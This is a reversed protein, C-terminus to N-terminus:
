LEDLASESLMALELEVGVAALEDLVDSEILASGTTDM